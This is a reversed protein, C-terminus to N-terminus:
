EIVYKQRIVRVGCFALLRGIHDCEKILYKMFRHQGLCLCVPLFLTYLPIAILSKLVDAHTFHPITGRLLARRVM